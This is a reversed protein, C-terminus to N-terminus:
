APLGDVVKAALERAADITDPRLAGFRVPAGATLEEDYPIRVVERV